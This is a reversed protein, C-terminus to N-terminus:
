RAGTVFRLIDRGVVKEIAALHERVLVGAGLRLRAAPAALVIADLGDFLQASTVPLGTKADLTILLDPFTALRSGDREATMYENWITLDLTDIRATGVDFGGGTRIEVHSVPGRALVRAGILDGLCDATRGPMGSCETMLRRGIDIAQTIAGCAGHQRLYSAAVPNRAVAVLGGAGDAAARVIRNAAGLPGRVQLELYRGALRNGGSVGQLSEFGHVSDLGISGMDGTPHARGDAPADVVPIGLEASQLWGNVTALGGNECSAIGSLPTVSLRGLLECARAHDGPEVRATKSAPAGVLAVTAVLADPDLEDVPVLRPVGAALAAQGLRLGSAMTGGGGGGLMAGGLVAAELEDPGLQM